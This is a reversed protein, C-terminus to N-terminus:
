KHLLRSSVYAHRVVLQRRIKKYRTLRCDYVGPQIMIRRRNLSKLKWTSSSWLSLATNARIWLLVKILIDNPYKQTILSPLMSWQTTSIPLPMGSKSNKTMSNQHCDPHLISFFLLFYIFSLIMVWLHLTDPCIQVLVHGLNFNAQLCLIQKHDCKSGTSQTSNYAITFQSQWWWSRLSKSTLLTKITSFFLYRWIKDNINIKIKQSFQQFIILQVLVLKM